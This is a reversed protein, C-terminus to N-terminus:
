QSDCNDEDFSLGFIVKGEDDEDFDKDLEGSHGFNYSRGCDAGFTFNFEKEQDLNLLLAVLDKVLM